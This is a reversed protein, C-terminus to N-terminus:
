RENAALLQEVARRTPPSGAQVHAAGAAAAFKAAAAEDRGEALALTFAGHFVDGAGTTDIATVEVAPTFGGAHSVGNAGQTVAWWAGREAFRRAVASPGGLAEGVEADTIVHTALDALRVATDSARDLDVVVPLGRERALRTMKEAGAPWEPHILVASVGDLASADLWTAHPTFSQGLHRIIHREGHEDILVTCVGTGVEPRVQVHSIDVGAATLEDIVFRGNGDDGIAALLRAAGGLRRVAVAAVAAPGGLAERYAHADSRPQSPPYTSLWFRHDVVAHGVTAVTPARGSNPM